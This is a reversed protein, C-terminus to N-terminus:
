EAQLSNLILVGTFVFWRCSSYNFTKPYLRMYGGILYIVVLWGVFDWTEHLFFTSIVTYYTLTLGLIIKYQRQNM